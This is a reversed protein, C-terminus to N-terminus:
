RQCRPCWVTARQGLRAGKLTTGCVRCPEGDRGYVSLSQRFYGPKGDSGVFDRLTTGGMAVAEGLVGRVSEALADYRARAIRGAARAPHIGARFLAEAAYINGVGVVTRADMLFAKVPARRGRARAHLWAGDFAADLPEPGLADLLFHAPEAADAPADIWHLSGFRRPDNLRLAVPREPVVDTEADAEAAADVVAEAPAGAPAREAGLPDFLVEVHDHTRWPTQPPVLRLSGSMGLHGLLVGAPFRLLLYKARRDIRALRAGTLHQGLDEPVPWRLRPERVRVARVRRGELHPALGRRTTEVEPLEPV